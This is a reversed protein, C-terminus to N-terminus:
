RLAGTASDREDCRVVNLRVSYCFIIGHGVSEVGHVGIHDGGGVLGVGPEPVLDDIRLDVGVAGVVYREGAVPIGIRGRSSLVSEALRGASSEVLIKALRSPLSRILSSTTETSPNLTPLLPSSDM